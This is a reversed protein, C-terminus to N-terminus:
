DFKVEVNNREENNIIEFMKKKKFRFIGAFINMPFMMVANNYIKVCGNYYKRSNSIDEEISKLQNQLDLFNTNAKLDPYAEALAFLKGIGRSLADNQEMISDSDTASAASNRLKIVEALTNKEHSAYGKVTNVLNPVLDYRKKLYVDMTSFAEDCSNSKSVLSNYMLAIILVVVIAVIALIM